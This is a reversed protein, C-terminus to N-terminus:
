IKETSVVSPPDRDRHPGIHRDDHRAAYAPVVVKESRDEYKRSHSPGSPEDQTSARQYGSTSGEGFSARDHRPRTEFAPPADPSRERTVTYSARRSDNDHFVEVSSPVREDRTPTFNPTSKSTSGRADEQISYSSEQRPPLPPSIIDHRPRSPSRRLHNSREYSGSHAGSPPSPLVDYSSHQRLGRFRDGIDRDGYPDREEGYYGPGYDARRVNMEARPAAPVDRPFEKRYEYQDDRFPTRSSHPYPAIDRSASVSSSFQNPPARHDIPHYSLSSDRRSRVPENWHDRSDLIDDMHRPRKAQVESDLTVGLADHSRRRDPWSTEQRSYPFSGAARYASPTFNAASPARSYEHLYRDDYEERRIPREM